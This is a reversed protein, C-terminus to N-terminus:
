RRYRILSFILRPSTSLVLLSDLSSTDQFHPRYRDNIPVFHSLSLVLFAVESILQMRSKEDRNSIRDIEMKSIGFRLCVQALFKVLCELGLSHQFAITRVVATHM